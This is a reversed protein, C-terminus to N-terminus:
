NDSRIVSSCVLSLHGVKRNFVVVYSCGIDLTIHQRPARAKSVVPNRTIAASPLLELTLPRNPLLSSAYERCDRLDVWCRGRSFNGGVRADLLAM